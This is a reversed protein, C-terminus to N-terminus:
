PGCIIWTPIIALSRFYKALGSIHISFFPYRIPIPFELWRLSKAEIATDKIGKYVLVRMTAPPADEM